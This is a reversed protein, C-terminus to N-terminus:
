DNPKFIAWLLVSVIIDHFLILYTKFLYQIEVLWRTTKSYFTRKIRAQYNTEVKKCIQMKVCINRIVNHNPSIFALTKFSILKDSHLFTYMENTHLIWIRWQTMVMQMEVENTFYMEVNGLWVRVAFSMLRINWKVVVIHMVTNWVYFFNLTGYEQM